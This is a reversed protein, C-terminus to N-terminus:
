RKNIENLEHETIIEQLILYESIILITMNRDLGQLFLRIKDICESKQSRENIISIFSLENRQSIVRIKEIDLSEYQHLLSLLEEAIERKEHTQYLEEFFQYTKNDLPSEEIWPTDDYGEDFDSADWLFDKRISKAKQWQTMLAVSQEQEHEGINQLFVLIDLALMGEDTYKFKDRILQLLKTSPVSEKGVYYHDMIIVLPPLFGDDLIEFIPFFHPEIDEVIFEIQLDQIIEFSLIVMPVKIAEKQKIELLKVAFSLLLQHLQHERSLYKEKISLTTLHENYPLYHHLFVPLQELTHLVRYLNPIDSSRELYWCGFHIHAKLESLMNLVLDTGVLIYISNLSEIYESIYRNAERTPAELIKEKLTEYEKDITSHHDYIM